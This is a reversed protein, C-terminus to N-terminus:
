KCINEMYFTKVESVGKRGDLRCTFEEKSYDVSVLTLKEIPSCIRKIYDDYCKKKDFSVKGKYIVVTLIGVIILIALIIAITKKALM